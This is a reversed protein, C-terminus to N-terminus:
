VCEPARSWPPAAIRRPRVPAKAESRAAAPGLRRVGGIGPVARRTEALESLIETM